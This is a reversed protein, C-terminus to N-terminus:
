IRDWNKLLSGLSSYRKQIITSSNDYSSRNRIQCVIDSHPIFGVVEVYWISDKKIGHKESGIYKMKMDDGSLIRIKNVRQKEAVQFGVM